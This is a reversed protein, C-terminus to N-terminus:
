KEAYLVGLTRGQFLYIFPTCVLAVIVTGLYPILSLIAVIIGFVLFIIILIIYWGIYRGFGIASIDEIVKNVMLAEKISGTDALRAAAIFLLLAFIIFIIASIIATIALGGVLGSLLEQPVAQTFSTANQMVDPNESMFTVIMVDPNESMFTVIKFINSFVGTAGAIIISIIFPIIMYIIAVIIYQIGDLLNSKFDIEPLGDYGSITQRLVSIFYGLVFLAAIFALVGLLSKISPDLNIGWGLFIDSLEMVVFFVGFILLTKIDQIPYPLSEKFIDILGTM